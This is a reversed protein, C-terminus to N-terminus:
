RPRDAERAEREKRKRLEAKELDKKPVSFIRKAADEFKEFPTPREAKAVSVPYARRTRLGLLLVTASM